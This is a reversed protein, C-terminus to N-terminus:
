IYINILPIHPKNNIRHPLISAGIGRSVVMCSYNMTYIGSTYKPFFGQNPAILGQNFVRIQGGHAHGSMILNPKYKSENNVYSEFKEPRHSLLINYDSDINDINLSSFDGDDKLGMILINKSKIDVLKYENELVTVNNKILLNRLEEKKNSSEEHNGFVYFVYPYKNISEIFSKVGSEDLGDNGNILDGTIAIIDIKEEDIKNLVNDLDIKINPFHMDSLQMIKIQNKETNEEIDYYTYDITKNDTFCIALIIPILIIFLCVILIKRKKCKKM